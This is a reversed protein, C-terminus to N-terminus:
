MNQKLKWKEQIHRFNPMCIFIPIMDIYALHKSLSVEEDDLYEEFWGLLDAPTQTYRHSVYKWITNSVAWPYWKDM